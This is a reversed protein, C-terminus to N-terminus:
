QFSPVSLVLFDELFICFVVHMYQHYLFLEIGQLNGEKKIKKLYYPISWQVLFSLFLWIILLGGFHLVLIFINCQCLSHNGLCM